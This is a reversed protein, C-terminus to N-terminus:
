FALTKEPYIVMRRVDTVPRKFSITKSWRVNLSGSYAEVIHEKGYKYVLTGEKNKGLIRFDPTKSSLKKPISYSITQAFTFSTVSCFLLIPIIRNSLSIHWFSGYVAQLSGLSIM